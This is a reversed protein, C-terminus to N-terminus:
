RGQAIALEALAIEISAAIQRDVRLQSRIINKRRLLLNRFYPDVHLSSGDPSIVPVKPGNPDFKAPYEMHRAMYPEMHDSFFAMERSHLNTLFEKLKGYEFLASRLEGFELVDISSTNALDSFVPHAPGFYFLGFLSFFVENDINDGREMDQLITDINSVQREHDKLQEEMELGAERFEDELVQLYESQRAKEKQDEWAADLAFALLISAVIVMGELTLRSWLHPQHKENKKNM